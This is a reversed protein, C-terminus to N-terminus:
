PRAVADILYAAALRAGYREWPGFYWAPDLDRRYRLTWTVETGGDPLARWRLESGQWSLWRAIPTTDETIRYRLRNPGAETQEITLGGLAMDGAAFHVRWRRPGLQRWGGRQAPRPFGLRLFSPLPRDFRPAQQLAQAVAWPSADIRRTVVVAEARRLTLAPHTGELSLLFFPLVLAGLRGPKSEEDPATPLYSSVLVAITGAVLLFLPAAMLICIFGERLLIVAMLLALTTGALVYALLSRGKFSLVLVVAIVTPLGIYLVATQGLPVYAFLDYYFRAVALALILGVLARRARRQPGPDADSSPM